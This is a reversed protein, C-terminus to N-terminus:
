TGACFASASPRASAIMSEPRACQSPAPWVRAPAADVREPAEVARDADSVRAALVDQREQVEEVAV